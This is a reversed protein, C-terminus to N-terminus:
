PRAPRRPVARPRAGVRPVAGGAGAGASRASRRSRLHAVAAMIQPLSFGALQRGDDARRPRRGPPPAPGARRRHPPRSTTSRSRAASRPWAPSSRARRDRGPLPRRGGRERAARLTAPSRRRSLRTARAWCGARPAFLQSLGADAAVAQPSTRWRAPSRARSRSAAARGARGGREARRGSPPHGLARGDDALGCATGPVTIADVRRPEPYNGAPAARPARGSGNVAHAAGDHVLAM